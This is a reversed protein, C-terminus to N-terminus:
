FELFSEQLEPTMEVVDIGLEVLSHCLLSKGVFTCEIAAHHAVFANFESVLLIKKHSEVHHLHYFEIQEVSELLLALSGEIPIVVLVVHIAVVLSTM